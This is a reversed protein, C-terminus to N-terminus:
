AINAPPYYPRSGLADVRAWFAPGAALGRPDKDATQRWMAWSDPHLKIAQAIQARGEDTQGQRLLHQGLKFRAHAEAINDGPAQLKAAAQAEDLANVSAAGHLVWDRVAGIYQAKVRNREAIVADPVTFTKRDMARFGDTSGATEPPRVIRGHEDIWVAQPVNVLNYLDAVHHERDILCPYAPKAAEIWPRAADAHDLAVALVTFNRDKLEDYLSQWVSLDARCGCWSAWTALFIKRGRYQSLRHERGSLDPLAFDPAQLGAMAAARQAAGTGLVWHRSATDHVVPQGSRRWVAALNLRGTRVLETKSAPAVPVCIDGHCLGEPKWSWGTAQEIAAADLWLADGDACSDPLPTERQEHLLTIM